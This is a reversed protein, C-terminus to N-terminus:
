QHSTLGDLIRRQEAEIQEEVRRKMQQWLKKIDDPLSVVAPTVKSSSSRAPPNQKSDRIM